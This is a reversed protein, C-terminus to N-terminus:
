KGDVADRVHRDFHKVIKELAYRDHLPTFGHHQEPLMVFEHDKGAEILANTM